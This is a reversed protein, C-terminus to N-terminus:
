FRVSLSIRHTVEDIDLTDGAYAYDVTLPHLYFGAGATLNEGQLRQRLREAPLGQASFGVELGWHSNFASTAPTGSTPTAATRSAADRRQGALIIDVRAEPLHWDYAVGPVVAPYIVENTGTSWSLYTTTIDQFKM